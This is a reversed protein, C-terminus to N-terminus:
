GGTRQLRMEAAAALALPLSWDGNHDYGSDWVGLEPVHQLKFLFNLGGDNDSPRFLVRLRCGLRVRSIFVYFGRLDLHPPFPRPAISLILADLTRGQLKFDTLAFSLTIWPAFIKIIKPMGAMAAYLSILHHDHTGNNTRIPIVIRRKTETEEPDSEDDGDGDLLSEIGEGSDGDPLTLEFNVAYPPEALEIRVFEQMAEAAVVEPPPLGSFSLSHMKGISGNVLAKTSQMNKLLMSPAEKVFVGILGKECSYLEDLNMAGLNEADSDGLPHRWLIMPRRHWKAFAEAQAFNLREREANGLVGV